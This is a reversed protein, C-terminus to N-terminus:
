LDNIQTGFVSAAFSIVFYLIFVGIVGLVGRIFLKMWTTKSSYGAITRSKVWEYIYNNIKYIIFIQSLILLILGIIPFIRNPQLVLVGGEQALEYQATQQSGIFNLYDIYLGIILYIVPLFKMINLPIEKSQFTFRELILGFASTIALALSASFLIIILLQLSNGALIGFDYSRNRSVSGSDGKYTYYHDNLSYRMMGPINLENGKYYALIKFGQPTPIEVNTPRNEERVNKSPQDLTLIDSTVRLYYKEDGYRNYNQWGSGVNDNYSHPDFPVWYYVQNSVLKYMPTYNKPIDSGYIDEGNNKKVIYLPESNTNVLGLSYEKEQLKITKIGQPLVSPNIAVDESFWPDPVFRPLGAHAKSPILFFIFLLPLIFRFVKM